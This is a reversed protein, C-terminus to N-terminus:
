VIRREIGRGSVRKLVFIHKLVKMGTLFSGDACAKHDIKPKTDTFPYNTGHKADADVLDAAQRM